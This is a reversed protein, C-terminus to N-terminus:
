EALPSDTSPQDDPPMSSNTRLRPSFRRIRGFGRRTLRNRGTSLSVFPPEAKILEAAELVEAESPQIETDQPLGATGRPLFITFTTGHDHPADETAMTSDVTITGAHKEIIGKTIWLGLGSGQEGKTTFFPRFLDNQIEPRIGTGQDAVKIIVGPITAFEDGATKNATQNYIKVRITTNPKSADAANTLLNTFVQRLEAPYGSAFAEPTLETIVYIGSKALSRELLILVSHMIASIDLLIPIRSERHMGLMARSINTVRALESQAMDVFEEREEETTGQKIMYLLNVVSDLPNHIEHAITAALRGAVALKESALLAAQTRRRETVDSIVTVSGTLYGARDYIPAESREVFYEAGDSRVLLASRPALSVTRDQAATTFQTPGIPENTLEDILPFVLEMHRHSAAAQTWGSLRQAATNLLEIRGDEDCVVVGEGISTLTARLRQESEYTAQATSRLAGMTNQYADSVRHRRNNAFLGLILAGFLSSLIVIEVARLMVRQWRDVLDTRKSQLTAIIGSEITVMKDMDNRDLTNVQTDSLSVHDRASRIIPTAVKESWENHLDILDNIPEMDAGQAALQDRLTNMEQVLPEMAFEYPQLTTEKLTRQYDRLGRAENSTLSSVTRAIELSQDTARIGEMLPQSEFVRWGLAAAVLVLGIVPLFLTQTLLRNLQKLNV